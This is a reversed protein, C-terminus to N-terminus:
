FALAGGLWGLGEWAAIAGGVVIGGAVVLGAGGGGVLVKATTSEEFADVYMDVFTPEPEPPVPVPDPEPPPRKCPCNCEKGNLSEEIAELEQIKYDAGAEEDVFFPRTFYKPCPGHIPDTCTCTCFAVVVGPAHDDIVCRCAELVGVMGSPDVTGPVFWGSYRNFGDQYGDGSLPGFPDRSHRRWYHSHGTRTWTRRFPDRGLFRGLGSSYMRARANLLGTEQDDVYGTFSRNFGVSSRGLALGTSGTICKRGYSDYTTREVVQGAINTVTAPSYLHNGHIFYRSAAGGNIAYAYGLVEDVYTGYAFEHTAAVPDLAAGTQDNMRQVLAALKSQVAAVTSAVNAPTDAAGIEVFCLKAHFAGSGPTITLTGNSVTASVAYGDFNGRNYGPTSTAPTSDTVTTTGIVLNNTQNTSLADGAVVVIPYTGNPLAISWSASTTDTQAQIFTDWEVLSAAHDAVAQVTVDASWGYSLGNTRVTYPKGKDALFGVPIVTTAPQMNIRTVGAGPLIGGSAPTQAANALNGDSTAGNLDAQSPIAVRELEVVTQAGADLYLTTRDQVTKAVRRGFADYRYSAIAGVGTTSADPTIIAGTLRNEPDWTLATQHEDKMLNGKADYTLANTGVATAEHVATHTRAEATGDRTTSTWDGVLSLIWSQAGTAGPIAAGSRNWNTLRSADDYGFNQTRSTALDSETLKRRDADYTYSFGSVVAGGGLAPATSMSAILADGPVYTRTEVLGNGFTTTSLRGGADYARTAVSSGGMTVGSLENRDTYTRTVATGTPYTLGTLRNAADYGYGVTYTAPSVTTGVLTGDPLTLSEATLRGAVDYTRGVTTAYRGSVASTLRSAHDYVFTDNLSGAYGRTILRNALDYVYDTTEPAGTFTATASFTGALIGVNRSGLRHGADYGYTRLTRGAQGTPFAEAILLNRADYAYQTCGVLNALGGRPENDADSIQVLNGVADYAFRTLGNLRDTLLTRRNRLDYTSTETKGLADTESLRNGDADYGWSTTGAPLRTDSRSTMRNHVDFGASWGEGVADLQGIQNGAADFSVATQNGLADIAQRTRGGADARSVTTHGLADIMATEVLGGVVVDYTVRSAHGLADIRAVSRGLGDRLEISTEGQPNTVAMASGDAGAGLGLAPLVAAVAPVADIGVGDTLNDDYAYATTEGAANTVSAVRNRADYTTTTTLSNPDTVTLRNGVPDYTFGTTFGAPDTIGVLRDCCIGYSYTTLRGLADTETAIKRTPTYTLLRTTTAEATGAAETQSALLNRGTYTSVTVVGRPSTSTLRNGVADYTAQILLPDVGVGETATLLRGQGDYTYATVVGRANTRQTVQGVLDYVIDAIVYGPNAGSPRTLGALYTQLASVQSASPAADTWLPASVAGPVLETVERLVRDRLDYVRFTRRGYPDTSVLERGLVDLTRTRTLPSGTRPYVTTGIPRNAYDYTTDTREGLKVCSAVLTTGPLYTCTEIAAVATGAAETTTIRRGYSDYGYTTQDGNRDTRSVVLNAFSGQGYAVLETSGDPYATQTLRNRADYTFVRTRGSADTISSVRGVADYAIQTVAQPGGVQDPPETITILRHQANYAYSTVHGNADTRTLPQGLANYTWQRTAAAPTGVAVTESLLNGNADYTSDTVRGLEDVSHLPQAFTNVTRTTQSADPYTTGTVSRKPIDYQFQHTRNAQDTVATYVLVASNSQTSRETAWSVSSVDLGGGPQLAYNTAHLVQDVMGGTHMRQLHNGGMYVYSTGGSNTTDSGAWVGLVTEGDLTDARVLMGAVQSTIAQTTPDVYTSLTYRCEKNRHTGDAGADQYRIVDAQATADQSYTFQAATGDPYSVGSLMGTAGLDYSYSVTTGNPLQIHDIVWDGTVKATRYTVQAQLGSPDTISSMMWLRSRDNGLAASTANAPYTYAIVTANGNRDVRRILRAQRDVTTYNATNIVEFVLKRGDHHLLEVTASQTVDSNVTGTADFLTVSRYFGGADRYVGDVANDGLSTNTEWCISYYGSTEPLFVRVNGIGTGKYSDPSLQLVKADTDLFWRHGLSGDTFDVRSRHYRRITLPELLGTKLEGVAASGGGCTTCSSADPMGPQYDIAEHRHDHSIYDFHSPVSSGTPPTDPPVCNGCIPCCGPEQKNLCNPDKGPPLASSGSDASWVLSSMASLVVTIVARLFLNM